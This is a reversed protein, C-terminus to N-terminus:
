VFSQNKFIDNCEKAVAKDKFYLVKFPVLTRDTESSVRTIIRGNLLTKDLAVQKVIVPVM